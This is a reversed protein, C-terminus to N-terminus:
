GREVSEFVLTLSEIAVERSLANFPVGRWAKPWAEALNWRMVELVGDPDLMIVSVNKRDVKGKVVNQFWDWLFRSSTVGYNLTLDGYTVQGPLQRVQSAMGAERYPISEVEVALGTCETFHAETNGQIEIHFNYARYPDNRTGPPPM